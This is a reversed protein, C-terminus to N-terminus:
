LDEGLESEQLSESLSEQRAQYVIRDILEAFQPYKRKLREGTEEIKIAREVKNEVEMSARLIARRIQERLREEESPRPPPGGQLERLKKQLGALELEKKTIEIELDYDQTEHQIRRRNALQDKVAQLEEIQAKLREIAYERGVKYYEKKAKLYETRREYVRKRVDAQISTFLGRGLGELLGGGRQSEWEELEIGLGDDSFGLEREQREARELARSRPRHGDLDPNHPEARAYREREDVVEADVYREHPRYGAGRLGQARYSHAELRWKILGAWSALKVLAGYLSGEAVWHYILFASLFALLNSGFPGTRFAFFIPRLVAWFTLAIALCVLRLEWGTGRRKTQAEEEEGKVDGEGGKVPTYEELEPASLIKVM